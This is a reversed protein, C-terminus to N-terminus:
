HKIQPPVRFGSDGPLVLGAHKAKEEKEAEEKKRKMEEQIENVQSEFDSSSLISSRDLAKLVLTIAVADMGLRQQFMSLIAEHKAIMQAMEQMSGAIMEMQESPTMDEFSKAIIETAM